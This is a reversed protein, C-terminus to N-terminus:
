LYVYERINVILAFVFILAMAVFVRLYLNRSEIAKIEWDAMYRGKRPGYRHKPRTKM